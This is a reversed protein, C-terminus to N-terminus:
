LVCMAPFYKLVKPIVYLQVLNQKCIYGFCCLSRCISCAVKDETRSIGAVVPQEILSRLLELPRVRQQLHRSCVGLFAELM